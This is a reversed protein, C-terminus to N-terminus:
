FAEAINVYFNASGNGFGLDMRLNIREKKDIARRLGFGLSNKLNQVDYNKWADTVNGLGAFLVLGWKSTLQRRYEAQVALLDKDRYRGAYFGRMMNPGGLYSLQLFPVNGTKNLAQLQIALVSKERLKFYKRIDFTAATYSTQGGLVNAYALGSLEMYIGQTANLINDRTDILFIAGLGANRTGSRGYLNETVIKGGENAEINYYSNYALQIGSFIGKRLGYLLSGSGNIYHYKVLEKQENPHLEGIGYFYEVFKLYNFLGRIMWKEDKLFTTTGLNIFLQNKFTYYTTATLNSSRTNENMRFVKIGSLGLGLSTEPAYTIVPLVHFSKTKQLSDRSQNQGAQVQVPQSFATSFICFTIVILAAKVLNRNKLKFKVFVFM